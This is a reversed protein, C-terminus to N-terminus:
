QTVKIGLANVMRNGAGASQNLQVVGRSGAFARDDIDVLRNGAPADTTGSNHALVVSQQALLSDDLSEVRAGLQVQFANIQQTGVGASQNVGLVGSGNAFANGRISASADMGTLPASADLSQRYREGGSASGIALTRGNIQQQLHGAAQNVSLAGSYGQGSSSILAANDEVPSSAWCAGSLLLGSVGILRWM